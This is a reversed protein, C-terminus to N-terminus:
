FLGKRKLIQVVFNKSLNFQQNKRYIVLFLLNPVFVCVMGKFILDGVLGFSATSCIALTILAVVVTIFSYKIHNSIYELFKFKSFYCNFLIKTQWVFNFVVITIITALVIGFVGFFYGLLISLGLNAIAEFLTRYRNEWWLGTAGSYANTIDSMSQTLFYISFLIVMYFPFMNTEGVWLKMFPQYLCLLCIACWSSIWSYMFTFKNYDQYNKEKSDIAVSNGIGARMSTVFIVIVSSVNSLLYFYNSYIAVTTLGLFASIIISGFTNRTLGCFKSIVVGSVKEKVDKKIEDPVKGKPSLDPYVKKTLHEIALNNLISIIPVIVYYIYYDKFILLVVIQLIYQAIQLFAYVKNLVDERQFASFLVTKYGFLLYSVCTNILYLLYLYYINIDNPVDGKILFELFPLLLVGLFFIVIGVVKYIKKFYALLACILSNDNKAIPEYMSFAIASGFGLEVMNLVQLISTFLSSLGLYETGLIYIIITRVAFPGLLAIIRSFIGWLINRITNKKRELRM